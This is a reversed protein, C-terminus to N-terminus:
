TYAKDGHRRLQENVILQLANCVNGDIRHDVLRQVGEDIIHEGEDNLHGDQVANRAEAIIHDEEDIQVLHPDIGHVLRSLVLVTVRRHIQLLRAVLIVFSNALLVTLLALTKGKLIPNNDERQQVHM